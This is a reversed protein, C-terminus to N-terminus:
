GVDERFFQFADENINYPYIEIIIYDFYNERVFNEIDLEALGELSWIAEIQGCMPALFVMVPSFYSDRVAFIKCGDPNTLNVIKEYENVGNLYLSYASDKYITTNKTIVEADMLAEKANGEFFAEGGEHLCERTYRHDFKPWLVEFDEVGSYNAGTKRGMSGLMCNQYVVSEYCDPNLYFGEPDLNEGFREEMTRVLIRTAEFAAPITWHHDTRFFAEKLSFTENPIYQRYDLTEVGYRNLYFLLEDVAPSPDNVPMGRRFDTQGYVYKGPTVSFLVKTGREKVCDQLRRIRRAYERIDDADERFFSAYHLYGDEDRIYSFDNVERKDLAKQIWSYTEIFCMRGYMSEIIGSDLASVRGSLSCAGREELFAKEWAAYGHWANGASYLFLAPLFLITFIKKRLFYSKMLM